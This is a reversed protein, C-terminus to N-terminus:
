AGRSVPLGAVTGGGGRWAPAQFRAAWGIEDKRLQKAYQVKDATAVSIMVLAVTSVRDM